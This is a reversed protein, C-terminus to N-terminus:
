GNVIDIARRIDQAIMNRKSKEIFFAPGAQTYSPLAPVGRFTFSGGRIKYTSGAPIAKVGTERISITNIAKIAADGMLLYARVDTFLNLEHELLTSCQKITGAKIGYSQKGCKVATTFYIGVELLEDMSGASVGADQFALLTTQVFLANSGSYYYDSPNEPAAESILVIRVRAADIEIGPVQYLEHKVDLCPFEVCRVFDNIRM